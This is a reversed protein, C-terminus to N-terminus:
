CKIMMFINVYKSFKMFIEISEASNNAFILLTIRLRGESYDLTNSSSMLHMLQLEYNIFAEYYDDNGLM